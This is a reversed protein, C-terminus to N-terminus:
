LKPAMVFINNETKMANYFSREQLFFIKFEQVNPFNSNKLFLYANDWLLVHNHKTQTASKIIKKIQVIIEKKTKFQLLEESNIWIISNNKIFNSKEALKETINQYNNCKIINQFNIKLIIERSNIYNENAIFTNIKEKKAYKMIINHKIIEPPPLKLGNKLWFKLDIKDQQKIKRISNFFVLKPLIQKIIKM